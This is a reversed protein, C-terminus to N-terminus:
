AHRGLAAVSGTAVCDDPMFTNTATRTVVADGDEPTAGVHGPRGRSCSSAGSQSGRASPPDPIAARAEFPSDLQLEAARSGFKAKNPRAQLPQTGLVASVRAQRDSTLPSIQRLLTKVGGDVRTSKRALGGDLEAAGNGACARSHQQAGGDHTEPM